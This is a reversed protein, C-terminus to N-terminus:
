HPRETRAPGFFNALMFMVGGFGITVLLAVTMSPLNATYQADGAHLIRRFAALGYTLPNVQIVVRLWGPAGDPPFFAGSLMWLPLLLLNMMSHFGQISDMRWAIIFGLSTLGFAILGLVMVIGLFQGFGLSVGLLPAIACFIVGQLTGLVTGGLVKGLVLTYRPVPAVLVAQLFGEHRDEIISITSFIATFLVILTVTGPFFYLLFSSDASASEPRFSTGLGAGIFLWIVLPTALAGIVRSPQRFFRVLERWVLSGVALLVRTDGPGVSIKEAMTAISM